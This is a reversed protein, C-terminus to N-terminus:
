SPLNLLPNFHIGFKGPSEINV